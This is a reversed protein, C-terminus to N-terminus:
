RTGAEASGELENCRAAPARSDRMMFLVSETAGFTRRHARARPNIIAMTREVPFDFQGQIRWGCEVALETAVRCLDLRIEKYFSDQLVIFATAGSKAVRHLERMSAALMSFYAEFYRFYYGASAKSPHAKVGALFRVATESSIGDIPAMGRLVTPSGLSMHRLVKVARDDYGLIALEPRVSSVYDIRTCYPPSAVIVDVSEGLINLSTSSGHLIDVRGVHVEGESSGVSLFRALSSQAVRFATHIAHEGPRARNRIPITSKIWTPNSTAAAKLRSRTVLFLAVYFFAALPPISPASVTVASGNTASSVCLHFISREVARLIAAAAPTFWALLPDSLEIARNSRKARALIDDALADLNEGLENGLFRAKAIVVLAPNIDVGTANLGLGGAVAATTGAGVWPDLVHTIGRDAGVGAIRLVDEVFDPSYGAYYHYWGDSKRRGSQKPSRLHVV